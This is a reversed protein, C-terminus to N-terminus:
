GTCRFGDRRRVTIGSTQENSSPDGTEVDVGAPTAIELIKPPSFGEKNYGAPGFLEAHRRPGCDARLALCNRIGGM